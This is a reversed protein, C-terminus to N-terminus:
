DDELLQKMRDIEATQTDVISKALDRAEPSRGEDLETTAMEVAGEHHAIMLTLFRRDFAAGSSAELDAMQDDSMMGPMSGMAGMSDPVKEGWEELWGTMTKIEPEQAKAIQEALQLVDANETRAPALDTMETAQRHHPIMDQAFTVDAQNADSDSGCASLAGILAVVFTAALIRLVPRKM